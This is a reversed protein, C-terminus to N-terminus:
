KGAKPVRVWGRYISIYYDSPGFLNYGEAVRRQYRAGFKEKSNEILKAMEEVKRPNDGKPREITQLVFGFKPVWAGKPPGAGPAANDAVQEAARTAKPNDFYVFYKGKANDCKFSLLSYRKADHFCLQFPQAKGAADTVRYDSGDPKARGQCLIKVGCVDCGADPSPRTIEVAARANWGPLHWPEAAPLRTPCLWLFCMLWIASQRPM